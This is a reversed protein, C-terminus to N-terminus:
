EGERGGAGERVEGGGGGEGGEDGDAVVGEGEEEGESRPLNGEPPHASAPNCRHPPTVQCAQEWWSSPRLSCGDAPPGDAWELRWRGAPLVPRVWGASGLM